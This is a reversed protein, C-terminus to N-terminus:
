SNSGAMWHFTVANSALVQNTDLRYVKLTVQTANVSYVTLRVIQNLAESVQGGPTVVVSEPVRGLGHNFSLYGSANTTATAVGYRPLRKEVAATLTVWAGSVRQYTMSDAMNFVTAGDAPAWASMETSNRTIVTGGAMATYPATQTIVVGSSQTSVATSPIQATALEVAGAPISPKVLSAVPAVAGQVVGIEPVDSLDGNATFRARAYVVDIRANASPAVATAVTVSGDNRWIEAGGAIRSTVIAMDAVVYAMSTTGSVLNGVGNPLVGARVVGASNRAILGATLLRTDLVPLGTSLSTPFSNRVTM